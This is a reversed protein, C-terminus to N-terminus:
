LAESPAQRAKDYIQLLHDPPQFGSAFRRVIAATVFSQSAEM